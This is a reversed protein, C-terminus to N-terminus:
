QVLGETMWNRFAVDAPCKWAYQPQITYGTAMQKLGEKGYKNQDEENRPWEFM